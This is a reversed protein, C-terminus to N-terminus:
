VASEQGAKAAGAMGAQARHPVGAGPWCYPGRRAAAAAAARPPAARRPGAASVVLQDPPHVPFAPRKVQRAHLRRHGGGSPLRESGVLRDVVRQQNDRHAAHDHRTQHDPRDELRQPENQDRVRHGDEERVQDLRQDSDELEDEVADGEDEDGHEAAAAGGLTLPPPRGQGRRLVGGEGADVGDAAGAALELLVVLVVAHPAAAAETPQRADKGEPDDDPQEEQAPQQHGGLDVLNPEVEVPARGGARQTCVCVCETPACERQCERRACECGAPIPRVCRRRREPVLRPGVEQDVRREVEQVLVPDLGPVDLLPEHDVGLRSAAGHDLGGHLHDQRRHADGRGGGWGTQLSKALPPPPPPKNQLASTRFFITRAENCTSETASATTKKSNMM